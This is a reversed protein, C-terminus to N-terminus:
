PAIEWKKKDGLVIAGGSVDAHPTYGKAAYATALPYRAKVAPPFANNIRIRGRVDMEKYPVDHWGGRSTLIPANALILARALTHEVGPLIGAPDSGSNMTIKGVWFCVNKNQASAQAKYRRLRSQFQKDTKGVKLPEGNANCDVPIYVGGSPMNINALPQPTKSWQITVDIPGWTEFEKESQPWMDAGILGGTGARQSAQRMAALTAQEAVREMAKMESRVPRARACRACGCGGAPTAAEFEFENGAEFETEYM